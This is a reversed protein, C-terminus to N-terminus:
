ESLTAWHYVTFFQVFAFMSEKVDAPACNTDVIQLTDRSDLQWQESVVLGSYFGVKDPNDTVGLEEVMQNIFPFIVTYSVVCLGQSVAPGMEVTSAPSSWGQWDGMALGDLFAGAGVVGV